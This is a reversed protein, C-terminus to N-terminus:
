RTPAASSPPTGLQTLLRYQARNFEVVANLYLQRSQNLVQIAQLPRLADFLNKADVVNFTGEKTIRYLETAEKVAKEALELAEYKAAAQQASEVIEAVARAHADTLQYRAQDLQARREDADARNGFGLNKLEWYVQVNLANRSSFNQLDGNLGGGFGGTQNSVTVKPLLPGREQRRVRQWAAAIAERQSALDPRNAVALAVLGDLSSNPDVLTLPAVVADAPVLKVNAPLLLLRGLRASAVGIRAELDAREAQRLLVETRARQVDGATRDLKAERANGAAVHMAEAQALTEANIALVAYAQALDLYASVADLEAGLQTARTRFVESATARREVLPRYIADATDVTLTPGGGAFLNGRSLGFVLGTSNQTQGDIRMYAAGVAFNPIWQLEASRLRAQAERVRARAFGVTPSNEDVLRIVTPLDIPLAELQAYVPRVRPAQEAPVAKEVATAKPSEKGGEKTPQNLEPIPQIAQAQVVEPSGKPSASLSKAAVAQGPRSQQTQADAVQRYSPSMLSQTRPPLAVAPAAEPAYPATACGAALLGLPLGFTLFRRM